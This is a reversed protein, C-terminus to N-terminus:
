AHRPINLGLRLPFQQVNMISLNHLMSIDFQVRQPEISFFFDKLEMNRETGSGCEGRKGSKHLLNHQHQM